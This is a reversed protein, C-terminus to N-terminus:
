ALSFSLNTLFSSSFFIYALLVGNKTLPTLPAYLLLSLCSQCPRAFWPLRALQSVGSLQGGAKGLQPPLFPAKPPFGSFISCATRSVRVPVTGVHLIYGCPTASPPLKRAGIHFSSFFFVFFFHILFCIGLVVFRACLLLVFRCFCACTGYRCTPHLWM